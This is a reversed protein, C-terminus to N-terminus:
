LKLLCSFSNLCSFLKLEHSILVASHSFNWLVSNKRTRIKGFESQMSRLDGYKTRIRFICVLFLETNLCKERLTTKTWIFFFCSEVEFFCYFFLIIFIFFTVLFENLNKSDKCLIILYNKKAAIQSGWQWSQAMISSAADSM